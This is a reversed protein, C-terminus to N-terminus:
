ISKLCEETALAEVGEKLFLKNELQYELTERKCDSNIYGNIIPDRECMDKYVFAIKEMEDMTLSIAQRNAEVGAVALLESVNKRQMVNDPFLNKASNSINKRKGHFVATTVREV